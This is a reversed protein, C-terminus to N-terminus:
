SKEVEFTRKCSNCKFKWVYHYAGIYESVEKISDSECFICKKNWSYSDVTTGYKPKAKFSLDCDPLKSDKHIWKDDDTIIIEKQCYKCEFKM